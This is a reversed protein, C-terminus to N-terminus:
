ELNAMEMVIGAIAVAADSRGMAGASEAMRERRADSHMLEGVVKRLAKANTAADNADNVVVAARGDVLMKANQRQHQRRDFPYPMLISTVGVAMIEALTSAGARSIVLDAAAMCYHMHETFAATLSTIGADRFKQRCMKVDRPGTLHIIQWDMAMQWLDLLEMVAANISWAGQSAGTILLTKKSPDLQLARIANDRDANAFEPRIPCGTWRVKPSCNFYDATDPWQVFIRDVKRALRRNAVGPVADPNLLATPIRLKAAATIAPGAAYGGLGLVADPRREEFRATAYKVSHRWARLFGPYQWFRGPLPRVEQQILEFRHPKVLKKDIERPTGFVCVEFTPYMSRLATAVALGPFM